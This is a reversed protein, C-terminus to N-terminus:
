PALKPFKKVISVYANEVKETKAFRPFQKLYREEDEEKLLNAYSFIHEGLVREKLLEENFIAGKQYGPFRKENHPVFVGGDVVGKLVGFLKTGTTARKLGIDLIITPSNRIKISNDGKKSINQVIKRAMKLGIIYAASYNNKSLYEPIETLNKSSVMYYVCDGEIKSTILQCIISKKSNRVVLRFKPTNYKRKDQCILRKRALYDTKGERRRRWKVQFRSHYSAKNSLKLM